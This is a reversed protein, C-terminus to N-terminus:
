QNCISTTQWSSSTKDSTRTEHGPGETDEFRKKKKGWSRVHNAQRRVPPQVVDVTLLWIDCSPLARVSVHGMM